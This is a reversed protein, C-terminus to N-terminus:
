SMLVDLSLAETHKVGETKRIKILMLSFTCWEIGGGGM